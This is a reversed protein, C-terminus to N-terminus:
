GSTNLRGSNGCSQLLHTMWFAAKRTENPLLVGKRRVAVTIHFPLTKEGRQPLKTMGYSKRFKELEPSKVEVVWCKSMEDWGVPNFSKVAGTTYHFVKGRESIKDPDGVHKEIEEPRMVSIHARLRSDADEPDNSSKRPPLEIGQEDLSQFVGHVFANPVSLLLWGSGSLFLRGSMSYSIDSAFKIRPSPLVLSM